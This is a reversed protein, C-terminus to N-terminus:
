PGWTLIDFQDIILRHQSDKTLTDAWDMYLGDLDSGINHYPGGYDNLMYVLGYWTDNGDDESVTQQLLTRKRAGSTYAAFTVAYDNSYDVLSGAAQVVSGVDKKRYLSIGESTTGHAGVEGRAVADAWALPALSEANTLWWTSNYTGVNTLDFSISQGTLPAPSITVQQKYILRLSQDSAITLTVPDGNSDRFLERVCINAGSSSNPSWAWETLNQGGVQSSDFQKVRSIEFLGDSVYAAGETEGSPVTGTRAVEADLSTQTADPTSSGTGVAAYNTLWYFGYQAILDDWTQNLVLNHIPNEAEEVVNGDPGIIQWIMEHPKLSAKIASVNRFARM